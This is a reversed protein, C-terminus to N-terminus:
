VEVLCKLVLSVCRTKTFIGVGELPGRGERVGVLRAPAIKQLHPLGTEWGMGLLGLWKRTRVSHRRTCAPPSKPPAVSGGSGTPAATCRSRARAPCHPVCSLGRKAFGRAASDSEGWSGLWVREADADWARPVIRADEGVGVRGGNGVLHRVVPVGRRATTSQGKGPRLDLGHGHDGVRADVADRGKPRCRWRGGIAIHAHMPRRLPVLVQQDLLALAPADEDRAAHRRALLHIRTKARTICFQGATDEGHGRARYSPARSDTSWLGLTLPLGFWLCAGGGGGPDVTLCQNSGFITHVARAAGCGVGLAAGVSDVVGGAHAGRKKRAGRGAVTGPRRNGGLRRRRWRGDPACRELEKHAM